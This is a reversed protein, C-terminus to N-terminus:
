KFENAYVRREFEPKVGFNLLMGVEHRTAKLYNLLQATHDPALCRAAKLEVIVADCVLIDSAYMGVLNGKYYVTIGKQAVCDLGLERLEILM